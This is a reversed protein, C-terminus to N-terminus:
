VNQAYCDAPTPSAVSAPTSAAKRSKPPTDNRSRYIELMVRFLEKLKENRIMITDM